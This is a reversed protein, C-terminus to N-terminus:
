KNDKFATMKLSTASLVFNISPPKHLLIIKRKPVWIQITRTELHNPYLKISNRNLLSDIRTNLHHKRSKIRTIPAHYPLLPKKIQLHPGRPALLIELFHEWSYLSTDMNWIRVVERPTLITPWTVKSSNHAYNHTVAKRTISKLKSKVLKCFSPDRKNKPRDLDPLRLRLCKIWTQM